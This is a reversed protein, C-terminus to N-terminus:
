GRLLCPQLPGALPPPPLALDGNWVAHARAPALRRAALRAGVEPLCATVTSTCSTPALRDVASPPATTDGARRRDVRTRLRAGGTRPRLVRSGPSETSSLRDAAHAPRTRSSLPGRRRARPGVRRARLAAACEGGPGAASAAHRPRHADLPAAASAPTSGDSNPSRRPDRRCRRRPRVRLLAGASRLFGGAGRRDSQLPQRRRDGRELSVAPQPGARRRRALERALAMMDDLSSYSPRLWRVRAIGLKRLVRKTTYADAGARVAYQLLPRCAGTLAASVPVELLGSSGPPDRQRLGPLVPTLPAESSTRAARTRRTSCRRWARNLGIAWANSRRCTHPPFASGDRLSVLRPARWRGREIATPSRRRAAGAFQRCAAPRRRLPHRRVDEPTCPPTEWAHHHAGIECDGGAKLGRLVGASRPDAAVPHTIVYTPRVGHRPSCPMSGPCRTSTRSGSTSAARRCGVPQRGETDIGVLLHMRGQAVPDAARMVSGSGLRRAHRALPRHEEYFDAAVATGNVKAVFEMTSKVQFYGSRKLISASLRRAHAFARIKDSDAQRAERDIWRLLTEFGTKTTRIPSFTSWCRSAAARSTCTGTSPTAPRRPRRAATRRHSYRVHPATAFKWNLYAADRRVALDFKAAVADWLDTFSDDFRQVM